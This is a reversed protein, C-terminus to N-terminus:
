QVGTVFQRCITLQATEDWAAMAYSCQPRASICRIMHNYLQYSRYYILAEQRTITVDSKSYVLQHVLLKYIREVIRKADAAALMVKASPQVVPIHM